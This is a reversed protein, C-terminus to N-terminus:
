RRAIVSVGRWSASTMRPRYVRPRGLALSVVRESGEPRVELRVARLGVVRIGGPWVTRPRDACPEFRVVSFGPARGIITTPRGQRDEMRGYYLFVRHRDRDPVSVTVPARGAVFIPMKTILQGNATRTMRGLPDRLVGVPGAVISRRRWDSPGSGITVPGRDCDAIQHRPSENAAREDPGMLAALITLFLVAVTV